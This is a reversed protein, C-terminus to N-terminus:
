GARRAAAIALSLDLSDGYGDAAAISKQGLLSRAHDLGLLRTLRQKCSHRPAYTTCGKLGARKAAGRVVCRYASQRYAADPRGQRGRCVFVLGSRHRGYLRLALRLVARCRPGLVVHRSQGRWANKHHPPSYVWEEGSTDIQDWRMSRAEGPRMGSWLQLLLMLRCPGRRVALAVRIVEADAFVRRRAPHRVTRDGPELKPLARLAAWSGRPAHRKRDLWRWVTRIRAVRRNVTTRNWGGRCARPPVTGGVAPRAKREQPTLWSGSCMADRVAELDEVGFSAAPLHGAVRCLVTLAARYGERESATHGPLVERAWHAVAEEVTAERPAPAAAPRRERELGAVWQEYAARAEPTGYVGHYVNRGGPLRSYAQGTAHRRM